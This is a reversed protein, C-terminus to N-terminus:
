HSATQRLVGSTRLRFNAMQVSVGYTQAISEASMHRRAADVLLSRPLLLCGALWTAEQEEEPDCAFFSFEGVQQIEKVTHKLLLHSVEHAIDSQVRGPLSLPNWVIIRRNGIEFTCASFAGPQAADIAELKGIDILDSASRVEIGLHKAFQTANVSASDGVNMDKRVQTSTREAEAKFGRRM